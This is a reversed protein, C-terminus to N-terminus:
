NWSEVLGKEKSRWKSMLRFTGQGWAWHDGYLKKTEAIFDTM